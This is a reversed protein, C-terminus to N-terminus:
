FLSILMQLNKCLDQKKQKNTRKTKNERDDNWGDFVSLTLIKEALLRLTTTVRERRM